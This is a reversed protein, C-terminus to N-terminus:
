LTAGQPHSPAALAALPAAAPEDVLSAALGLLTCAFIASLVIAFAGGDLHHRDHPLHEPM